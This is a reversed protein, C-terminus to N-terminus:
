GAAIKNLALEPRNKLVGELYIMCIWIRPMQPVKMPENATSALSSPWRTVPESAM